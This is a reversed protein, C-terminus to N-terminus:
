RNTQEWHRGVICFARPMIWVFRIYSNAAHRAVRQSCSRCTVCRSGASPQWRARASIRIPSATRSSVVSARLCSTRMARSARRIPRRLCRASFILSRSSCTPIPQSFASGDGKDADRVLEFLLRAAPTGGRTCLGGEPECGLHSVLAQRPLHLGLWQADNAFCAAPRAADFLAVDGVALEVAHDNQTLASRGAVQFVAYYYDAGAFRVDRQTRESRYASHGLDLAAFGCEIKLAAAALGCVSVPQMWGAFASPDIVEPQDGCSARIFARWAEFDLQLTEVFGDSELMMAQATPLPEANCGRGNGGSGNGGSLCPGNSKSM